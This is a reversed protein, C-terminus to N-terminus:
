PLCIRRLLDCKIYNGAENPLKSFDCYVTDIAESGAVSYFGNLTHGTKWLDHCSTPMGTILPQGTCELRGLTHQGSSIEAITRGFNLRTIPLFQKATITGVHITLIQSLDQFSSNVKNIVMM